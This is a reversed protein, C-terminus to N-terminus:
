AMPELEQFYPGKEMMQLGAYNEEGINKWGTYRTDMMELWAFPTTPDGNMRKLEYAQDCALRIGEGGRVNCKGDSGQNMQGLVIAFMRHKRVYEALWQSVNDMHSSFSEGPRQGQVLQLYDLIIGKSKTRTAATSCLRKLQSFTVGPADEYHVMGKANKAAEYLRARFWGEHKVDTRFASPYVDMRRALVREHIENAGMEGCIFTHKCGNDALNHSFTAGLATKGSKKRGFFGYVKGAYFGGGMAEDLQTIGSSYPRENADLGAIIRDITQRETFHRKTDEGTLEDVTLAAFDLLSASDGGSQLTVGLERLKRERHAELVIEVFPEASIIGFVRTLSEQFFRREEEPYKMMFASPIFVGSTSAEIIADYSAGMFPDSFKDGTLNTPMSKPIYDPSGLMLGIITMEAEITM